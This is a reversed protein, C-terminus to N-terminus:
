APLALPAYLAQYASEPERAGRDNRDFIQGPVIGFLEGGWNLCSPWLAPRPLCLWIGRYCGDAPRRRRPYGIACRFAMGNLAPIRLGRDWFM